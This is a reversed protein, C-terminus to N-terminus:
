FDLFLEDFRAIGLLVGIISFTVLEVVMALGFRRLVTEANPAGRFWYFLAILAAGFVVITMIRLATKSDTFHHLVGILLLAAVVGAILACIGGVLRPFSEAIRTITSTSPEATPTSSADRPTPGPASKEGQRDARGRRWPFRRDRRWWKKRM